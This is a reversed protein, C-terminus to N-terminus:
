YKGSNLGVNQTLGRSTVCRRGWFVREDSERCGLGWFAAIQRPFGNGSPNKLLRNQISASPLTGNRFSFGQKAPLKPMPGFTLNAVHLLDYCTCFMSKDSSVTLTKYLFVIRYKYSMTFLTGLVTFM